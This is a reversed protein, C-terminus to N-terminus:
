NLEFHSPMVANQFQSGKAVIIQHCSKTEALTIFNGTTPVVILNNM